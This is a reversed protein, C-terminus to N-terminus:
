GNERSSEMSSSSPVDTRDPVPQDVMVPATTLPLSVAQTENSGAAFLSPSFSPHNGIRYPDQSISAGRRAAHRSVGRGCLKSPVPRVSHSRWQYRCSFVFRQSSTLRSTLRLNPEGLQHFCSGVTATSRLQKPWPARCAFSQPIFEALSAVRSDDFKAYKPYWNKEDIVVMTGAALDGLRQMRRTLVMSILAFVFTPIM